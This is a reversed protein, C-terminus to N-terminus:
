RDETDQSCSLFSHFILSVFLLISPLPVFKSPIESIQRVKPEIINNVLFIRNTSTLVAVGTGSYSVFVKAAVVKTDKAEQTCLFGYIYNGHKTRTREGDSRYPSYWTRKGYRVRTPIYRVYRIHSDHRGRSRMVIRRTSVLRLLGASRREVLLMSDELRFWSINGVYFNNYKPSFNVQIKATLKGSSTHLYIIPKNSGQVKVLKKPDRTIAISGGYPAAM